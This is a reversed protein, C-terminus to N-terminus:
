EEIFDSRILILTILSSLILRHCRNADFDYSVPITLNTKAALTMKEQKLNKVVELASLSKPLWSDIKPTNLLVLFKWM